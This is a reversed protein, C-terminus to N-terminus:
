LIELSESRQYNTRSFYCQWGLWYLDRINSPGRKWVVFYHILSIYSILTSFPLHPSFLFFLSPLHYQSLICPCFFSSVSGLTPWCTTHPSSSSFSAWLGMDKFIQNGTPPSNLFFESTHGQHLLYAM